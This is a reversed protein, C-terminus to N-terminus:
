GHNKTKGHAVFFIDGRTLGIDKLMFDDLAHLQRAGRNRELRLRVADLVTTAFSRRIGRAGSRARVAKSGSSAKSMANEMSLTYTVGSKSPVVRGDPWSM